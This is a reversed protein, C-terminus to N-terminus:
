EPQTTKLGFDVLECKGVKFDEAMKGGFKISSYAVLRDHYRSFIGNLIYFKCRVTGEDTNKILSFRFSM